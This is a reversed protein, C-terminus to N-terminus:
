QMSHQNAPGFVPNWPTKRAPNSWSYIVFLSIISSSERKPGVLEISLKLKVRAAADSFAKSTDHSMKTNLMCTLELDHHANALQAADSMGSCSISAFYAVAHM